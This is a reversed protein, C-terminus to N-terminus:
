LYYKNKGYYTDSKNLINIDSLIKSLNKSSNVISNNTGINYNADDLELIPDNQDPFNDKVSKNEAMINNVLKRDLIAPNVDLEINKDDELLSFSKSKTDVAINMQLLTDQSLTVLDSNAKHKRTTRISNVGQKVQMTTAADQVNFLMPETVINVIKDNFIFKKENKAKVKFNKIVDISVEYM